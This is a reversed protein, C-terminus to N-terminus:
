VSQTTGALGFPPLPWLLSGARVGTPSTKGGQGRLVELEPESVESLPADSGEEEEAQLLVEKSPVFDADGAPDDSDTEEKEKKRRGRRKKQVRELEPVPEQAGETPAPPQCVSSLEEALQQLYLLARPCRLCRGSTFLPVTCPGAGPRPLCNAPSHCLGGPHVALRLGAMPDALTGPGGWHVCGAPLAAAATQWGSHLFVLSRGALAGLLPLELCVVAPAADGETCCCSPVLASCGWCGQGQLVPSACARPSCWCQGLQLWLGWLVVGWSQGELLVPSACHTRSAM